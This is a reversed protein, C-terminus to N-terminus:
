GNDEIKDILKQLYSCKDYEEYTLFHNITSKILNKYDKQPINVLVNDNVILGISIEKKDLIKTTKLEKFLYDFFVKQNSPEFLTDLISKLNYDFFVINPLKKKRM